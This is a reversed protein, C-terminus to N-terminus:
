AGKAASFVQQTPAIEGETPAIKGEYSKNSDELEKIKKHLNQILAQLDENNAAAILTQNKILNKILEGTESKPPNLWWNQEDKPM